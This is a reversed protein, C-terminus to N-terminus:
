YYVEYVYMVSVTDSPVTYPTFSLNGESDYEIYGYHGDHTYIVRKAVAECPLYYGDINGLLYETGATLKNKITGYIRFSKM